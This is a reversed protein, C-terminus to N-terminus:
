KEGAKRRAEACVRCVVRRKHGVFMSGCICKNHYKGNEDSFDEPWDRPSAAECVALKDMAEKLAAELTTTM